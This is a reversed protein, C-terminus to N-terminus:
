NFRFRSMSFDSDDLDSANIDSADIGSADTESAHIGSGNGELTEIDLTTGPLMRAPKAARHLKTASKVRAVEAEAWPLKVNDAEENEGTAMPGSPVEDALMVIPDTFPKAPDTFKLQWTDGVFKASGGTQETLGAVTVGGVVAEAVIVVLISVAGAAYEIVIVPVAGEVECVTFKGVSVTVTKATVGCNVIETARGTDGVDTGAPLPPCPTMLTFGTLPYLVGGPLAPIVSEQLEM